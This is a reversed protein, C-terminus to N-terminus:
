LDKSDFLQTLINEMSLEEFKVEYKFEYGLANYITESILQRDEIPFIIRIAIQNLRTINWDLNKVAKIKELVKNTLNSDELTVIVQRQNNWSEKFAYTSGDFIKKGNDIVIMKECLSDLDSPDHTVLLITTNYKENLVRLLNRTETRALVDLGITPEDLILIEPNHLISCAFNFRNKQGLSLERTFVNPIDKLGLYKETLETMEQFTEDPIKYMRKLVEFTDTAPLNWFLQLRQGFIIGISNSLEQRNYFPEKGLVEIKGCDAKLIGCLHKILTSKGCGNRGVIAVIEGQKIDINISNLAEIEIYKPKIIDKIFGAMDTYRDKVKYKKSLNEVVIISQEM